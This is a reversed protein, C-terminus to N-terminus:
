TLLLNLVGIFIIVKLILSAKAFEEKQKAKSILNIFYFLAFTIILMLFASWYLDFGWALFSYIGCFVIEIGAFVYILTKAGKVGFVIPYTRLNQTKDGELDQIDKVIERILSVIFAFVVYGFFNITGAQTDIQILFVCIAVISASCMAIVLNGILAMGKLQFSYLYLLGIICVNITTYEQSYILSVIISIVNLIAYLIWANRKTITHGIYTKLPKNFEDISQDFIDNVVYGAAATLLAPLLLLFFDLWYNPNM